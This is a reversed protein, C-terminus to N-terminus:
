VKRKKTSEIFKYGMVPKVLRITCMRFRYSVHLLTLLADWQPSFLDENATFLDYFYDGLVRAVIDNVLETPVHYGYELPPYSPARKKRKLSLTHVISTVLSKFKVM